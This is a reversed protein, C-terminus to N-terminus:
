IRLTGYLEFLPRSTFSFDLHLEGSRRYDALAGLALNAFTGPLSEFGRRDNDFDTDYVRIKGNPRTLAALVHDNDLPACLAVSQAALSLALFVTLAVKNM